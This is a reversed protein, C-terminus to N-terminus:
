AEGALQGCAAAVDAGGSYRLHPRLGRAVLRAVFAAVDGRAYPDRGEADIANYPVVSLRPRVGTRATFSSVLEALAAADEETDNIGALPTVAWMPAIGTGRAHEEVAAIVEPLAHTAAIPMLRRRVDQRASFISVGLRVKPLERALLRIGSPLGSTCVTIARADIALASPDSFVRVAEIVREVNALPEGMGQFVVGHVREGPGLTGRVLRVQEVIEWTALNRALGLRGTACFACALACGAQSSVCASFRGARELPIRVAEIAHGDPTALAMKVFPDLASRRVARV